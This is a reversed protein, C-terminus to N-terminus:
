SRWAVTFSIAWFHERPLRSRHHPKVVNIEPGDFPRESPTQGGYSGCHRLAYATEEVGIVPSSDILVCSIGAFSALPIRNSDQSAFGQTDALVL